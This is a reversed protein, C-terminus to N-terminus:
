KVREYRKLNTKIRLNLENGIKDKSIFDDAGVNLLDEITPDDLYATLFMIPIKQWRSEQRILQCLDLGSLKPMNLDLILLSPNINEMTYWFEEPETLTVLNLYYGDINIQTKLVELFRPDDDVILIEATKNEQKELSKHNDTTPTALNLNSDTKVPNSESDDQALIQYIETLKTLFINPENNNKLGVEIERCLNSAEGFGYTGFLGVLTHAIRIASDKDLSNNKGEFYSKLSSLDAFVSEKNALWLERIYALLKEQKNQKFEEKFEAQNFKTQSPELKSNDTKSVLEKLRYGIGYITQIINADAGAKELKKRISKIHSRITSNTPITDLDWLQDILGDISLVKQPNQLFIEFIKFETPTFHLHKNEYLVDMTQSNLSLNGYQLIPSIEPQKQRRLLAKIRAIFEQWDFPKTIYDDAGAEFARLKDNTTDLATVLFIPIEIKQQRLKRCITIGDSKPLIVDLIILNYSTTELHVFVEKESAAIEVVFDKTELFNKIATSIRKDDEVLLIKM